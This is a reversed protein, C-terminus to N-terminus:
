SKSLPALAFSFLIGLALTLGFSSLAATSSFALLGFALLTSITSLTVATNTASDEGESFSYFISYDIGIGLVLVLSIINFLNIPSGILGLLGCTIFVALLPPSLIKISKSFGFKITLLLFILFYALVTLVCAEGKLESLVLSTDSIKDIYTADPNTAMRVEKDHKIDKLLIISSPKDSNDIYLQKVQTAAPHNLFQKLNLPQSNLVNKRTNQLVSDEFGLNQCYAAFQPSNIVKLILEHDAKQQSLSPLMASISLSGGLADIESNIKALVSAEKEILADNNDASVLIFRSNDFPELISRFIEEQAVLDKPRNQLLRIDDNSWLTFYGCGSIILIITLATYSGKVEFRKKLKEFLRPPSAITKSSKPFLFLVILVSVIIGISSFVAIQKLGPFNSFFLGAYAILSTLAGWVIGKKLHAETSERSFRFHCFWHFAYDVCVGTLTAGFVVTIIHISGYLFQTLTLAWLIGATISTLTLFLQNASRFIFFFLLVIGIISGTGIFTIEWEAQARAREAYPFFGLQMVEAEQNNKEFSDLLFRFNKQTGSDFVSANFKASILILHDDKHKKYLFGKKISFAGPSPLEQIFDGFFMLPDKELNSTYLSSQPSYLKKTRNELFKSINGDKLLQRSEPTLLHFRHPFYLEYWLKFESDSKKGFVEKFLGSEKLQGDFNNTAKVAEDVSKAKILFLSNSSINETFHKVATETEKSHGTEPLLELINSNIKLSSFFLLLLPAAALSLIAAYVKIPHRDSSLSEGTTKM